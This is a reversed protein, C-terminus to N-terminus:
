QGREKAYMRQAKEHHEVALLRLESAQKWRSQAAISLASRRFGKTDTLPTISAATREYQLAEDEVTDAASEYLKAIEELESATWPKGETAKDSTEAFAPAVIRSSMHSDSSLHWIGAMGAMGACFGILLVGWTRM